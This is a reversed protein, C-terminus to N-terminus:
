NFMFDQRYLDGVEELICRAFLPYSGENLTIVLSGYAIAHHHNLRLGKLDNPHPTVGRFLWRCGELLRPDINNVNPIKWCQSM